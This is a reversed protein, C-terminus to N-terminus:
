TWGPEGRARNGCVAFQLAGVVWMSGPGFLVAPRLVHRGDQAVCHWAPLPRYTRRCAGQALQASTAAESLRIIRANGVSKLRSDVDREDNRIKSVVHM